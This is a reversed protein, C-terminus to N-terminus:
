KRSKILKELDELTPRHPNKFGKEGVEWLGGIRSSPAWYGDEHKYLFVVVPTGVSPMETSPDERRGETPDRRMTVVEVEKPAEGKWKLVKSVTLLHKEYIVNGTQKWLKTEKVTVLVIGESADILEPLTPLKVKADAPAILSVLCVMTLVLVAGNKRM